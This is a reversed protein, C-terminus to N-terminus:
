IDLPNSFYQAMSGKFCASLASRDSQLRSLSSSANSREPPISAIRMLLREWSDIMSQLDFDQYRTLAADGLRSRLDAGIMLETLAAALSHERDQPSALRGEVGDRIITNMGPCDAFGVVPLGHAIAELITLPFAEVVSALCFLQAQEYIPYSDDVRGLFRVSSKIGLGAVLRELQPQLSGYGVIELRWSPAHLLARHFARILLEVNKRPVLRAVTLLVPPVGPEGTPDARHRAAPVSNPIVTARPQLDLPLTERFEDLLLHIGDAASFLIERERKYFRGLQRPFQPDIHESLVMPVKARHALYVTRYFERNMHLGALVHLRQSAVETLTQLESNPTDTAPHRRLEISEHLPWSPDGEGDDWTHIFVTHGREALGNAILTGVRETGGRGQTIWPVTLGIRIRKPIPRRRLPPHQAKYCEITPAAAWDWNVQAIDGNTGQQLEFGAPFRGHRSLLELDGNAMKVGSPVSDSTGRQVMAAINYGHRVFSGHRLDYGLLALRYMMIGVNWGTSIHGGVVEYKFLPVCLFLWGDPKLVRQMESLAADVNGVHELVHSCWLADFNSDPFVRMDCVDVDHIVRATEPLSDPGDLYTHLDFGTVTVKLGARAFRRAAAGSGTGVDLISEIPLQRAVIHELIDHQGTPPKHANTM